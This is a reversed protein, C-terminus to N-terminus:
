AIDDGLLGRRKIVILSVVTLYVLAQALFPQLQYTLGNGLGGVVISGPVVGYLTGVGGLIVALFSQVLVDLGMNASISRFPAAVGGSLAALATGSSFTLKNMRNRNIGMLEATESDEVVARLRIGANTRYFLVFVITLIIAVLGIVFLRYAPYQTIGLNIQGPIPSSITFTANGFLIIFLEGMVLAVGWMALLSDILRDYLHKVILEEVLLGLVGGVVPALLMGIWFGLGLESGVYWTTFAGLAFFAGHATNIVGMFGFIIALGISALSLVAIASLMNLGISVIVESSMM